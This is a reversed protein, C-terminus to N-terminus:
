ESPKPRSTALIEGMEKGYGEEDMESSGVQFKYTLRLYYM